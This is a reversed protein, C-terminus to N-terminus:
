NRNGVKWALKSLINSVGAMTPELVMMKVKKEKFYIDVGTATPPDKKYTNEADMTTRANKKKNNEWILKKIRHQQKQQQQKKKTHRTLRKLRILRDSTVKM